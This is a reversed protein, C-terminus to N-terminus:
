KQSITDPHDLYENEWLLPTEHRESWVTLCVAKDGPKIEKNCTDCDYHSDDLHHPVNNVYITRQDGSPSKAIGRLVRRYEAPEGTEPDRPYALEKLTSKYKSGCEECLVRRM